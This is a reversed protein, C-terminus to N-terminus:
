DEYEGKISLPSVIRDRLALFQDKAVAKTNIYKLEVVKNQVLDRIFHQKLDFHKTRSHHVLNKALKIASISDCFIMSPQVQIEGIEELLKKLWLAQTGALTVAVYEAETSSLSVM